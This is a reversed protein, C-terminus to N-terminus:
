GHRNKRDKDKEYWCQDVADCVKPWDKSIIRGIFYVKVNHEVTVLKSYNVRSEKLLTEASATMKMRVPPFGLEPEDSLTRAKQGQVHIIGHKQPKLGRKKCGKGNYTLIPVCTCHGQDNAIV